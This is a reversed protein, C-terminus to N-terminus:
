FDKSKGYKEGQKNSERIKRKLLRNKALLERHNRKMHDIEKLRRSKEAFEPSTVYEWLPSYEGLIRKEIAELNAKPKASYKKWPHGMM